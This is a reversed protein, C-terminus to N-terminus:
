PIFAGSFIPVVRGFISASSSRRSRCARGADGRVLPDYLTVAAQPAAIPTQLLPAAPLTGAPLRHLAAFRHLADVTYRRHSGPTRVAEM